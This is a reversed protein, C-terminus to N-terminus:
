VRTPFDALALMADDGASNGYAYLMVEEDGLYARLREAKAEGRCNGGVMRGTCRGREDVELRTCLVAAVGLDRGIETLYVDLSASVIVVEHGQARHRELKAVVSPRLRHEFVQTAYAHGERAVVDHRLGGLVRVLLREKATDRDSRRLRPAEAIAATGVRRWGAVWALFPLLTDRRSLTGDFDFAAVTRPM